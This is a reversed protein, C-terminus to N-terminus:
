EEPGDSKPYYSKYYNRYSEYRYYGTVKPNWDNLAVGIVPIGDETLQRKAAIAADRSTKGCRVVLVVGDTM